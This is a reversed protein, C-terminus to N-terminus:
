SNNQCRPKLQKENITIYFLMFLIAPVHIMFDDLLRWNQYIVNELIIINIDIYLIVVTKFISVNMLM